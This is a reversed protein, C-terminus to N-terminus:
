YLVSSAAKSYVVGVEITAEVTAVTAKLTAVLSAAKSNM